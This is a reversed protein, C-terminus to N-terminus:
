ENIKRQSPAIPIFVARMEPLYYQFRDLLDEASKAEWISFGKLAKTLKPLEGLLTHPLFVTKTPYTDPNKEMEEVAKTNKELAKDWDEPDLEFFALFKM